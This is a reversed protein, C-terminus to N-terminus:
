AGEGAGADAAAQGAVPAAQEVQRSGVATLRGTEKLFYALVAGVVFVGAAMLYSYELNGHSDALRGGLIPGLVQGIGLFITIMGLSASAMVPGFQDGCAAGIIGPVAISTVGFLVASLVLGPTSPWMAFLVAAAAQLVYMLALARGRGIRDSITGWIVGCFISFVGLILFYTGARGPTFDLDTVLRKQFFTFYVIYAFGFMGYVAGLHYAYRSRLVSKYDIKQRAAQAKRTVAHPRDRQFVFTLVGVLFTLAAFFYWGLRWGHAGGAAIILPVVPGTIVLALSSGSSVIGSAMGRRRVDFWASMLAVSPVLV